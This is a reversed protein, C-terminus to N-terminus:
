NCGNKDGAVMNLLERRAIVAATKIGDGLLDFEFPESKRAHGTRKNKLQIRAPFALGYNELDPHINIEDETKILRCKIDGLTQWAFSVNFEKVAKNLAQHVRYNNSM